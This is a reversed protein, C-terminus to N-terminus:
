ADALTSAPSRAPQPAHHSPLTSAVRELDLPHTRGQQYGQEILEAIRAPSFDIAHSIQEM